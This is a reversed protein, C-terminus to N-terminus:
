GPCSILHGEAISDIAGSQMGPASVTCVVLVCVAALLGLLMFKEAAFYKLLKGLTKKGDKAKEVEQRNRPGRAGPVRYNNLQVERKPQNSM